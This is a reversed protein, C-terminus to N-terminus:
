ARSQSGARGWMREDPAAAATGLSDIENERSSCDLADDHSVRQRTRASCSRMRSVASLDLMEALATRLARWTRQRCKRERLRKRRKRLHFAREVSARLIPIYYTEVQV